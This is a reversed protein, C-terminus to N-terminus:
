EKDNESLLTEKIKKQEENLYSQTFKRVMEFYNECDDLYKIIVHYLNLSIDESEEYHHMKLREKIESSVDLIDIKKNLLDDWYDKANKKINNKNNENIFNITQAIIAKIEYVVAIYKKFSDGRKQHFDKQYDFHNEGIFAVKTDTTVLRFIIADTHKYAEYLNPVSGQMTNAAQILDNVNYSYINEICATRMDNLWQMKQQYQQLKRNRENEQHNQKMQMFLIVLAIGSTILSGAYSGWFQIWDNTKGAINQVLSQTTTILNLLIPFLVIVVVIVLVFLKGRHKRIFDNM